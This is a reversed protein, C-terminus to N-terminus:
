RGRGHHTILVAVAKIKFGVAPLISSSSYKRTDVGSMNLMIRIWRAITDKTSYTHPKIARILLKGNERDM